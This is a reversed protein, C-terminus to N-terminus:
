ATHGSRKLLEQVGGRVEALQSAIAELQPSTTKAFGQFSQFDFETITSGNHTITLEVSGAQLESCLSNFDAQSLRVSATDNAPGTITTYTGIPPTSAVTATCSGLASPMASQDAQMVVTNGNATPHNTCLM